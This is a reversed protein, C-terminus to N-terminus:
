GAPVGPSRGEGRRHSGSPDVGVRPRLSATAPASPSSLDLPYGARIFASRVVPATVFPERLASETLEEAVQRLIEAASRYHATAADTQGEAEDVAALSLYCPWILAPSKIRLSTTLAHRLAPGAKKRAGTALLVEGRLRCSQAINKYAQTTRAIALVEDAAAMAGNLNGEALELRGKIVMMRMAYRWRMFQEDQFGRTGEELYSRAHDFDGLLLCDTALNALANGEAETLRPKGARALELSAEDYQMARKVDFLERYVWGVTNLLRARWFRDGAAESSNLSPLLHGLATQYHGLSAQSMSLVFRGGLVLFPNPFSEGIEVCAQAHQVAIEFDSRLYALLALGWHEEAPTSRDASGADMAMVSSAQAPGGRTSDLIDRLKLAKAALGEDQLAGAMEIAQNLFTTAQQLRHAWYHAIGLQYLAEGERERNGTIRSSELLEELDGIAADFNSLAIHARARRELLLSMTEPTALEPHQRCLSLAREYQDVAERPANTAQARDGAKILYGLAASYREAREYHYALIAAMEDLHHSALRELAEAVQDHLWLRRRASLGDYVAQRILSHCFRYGSNTEEILRARLLDDVLDLLASDDQRAAARLLDYGFDRGVVSALAALRNSDHSLSELRLSIVERVSAPVFLTEGPSLQWIGEPREVKSAEMLALVVERVFFPNGETQQYLADTLASSLDGGGLLSVALGAVDARNLRSLNIRQTLRNRLLESFLRAMATGRPVEEERLACLFLIPVDSLRRTLYHLLQLSSEDAAHLDDLYVVLPSDQTLAILTTVVADFLRQREQGVDLDPLPKKREATAPEPLLRALEPSSLEPLLRSLDNVSVGLMEHITQPLQGALGSRIAEVFPGYPLRGEQEYAAGYIVRMGQEAAYEAIAEAMRSKGVGQEGCLFATGGHGSRVQGVLETLRRMEDARGILPLRGPKEALSSPRSARPPVKAEIGPRWQNEVIARYLETTEPSPEVELDRKLIEKVRQYQRLAQHRYGALTYVRMLERHGNENTPDVQALQQLCDIAEAHAARQCYLHAMNQLLEGYSALLAERRHGAWDEYIDEPLFDGQYLARAAEYTPLADTQQRAARILRDFEEADVWLTSAPNLMITGHEFMVYRSPAADNLDPQLVHRLVFLTRHLNNVASVADQEPWLLDLVYDRLLQRNPALLLLKFLTKAKRRRWAGDEILEQGRYVAFRGLTYVALPPANSQVTSVPAAYAL